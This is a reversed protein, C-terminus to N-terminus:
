YAAIKECYASAHVGLQLIIITVVIAAFPADFITINIVGGEM